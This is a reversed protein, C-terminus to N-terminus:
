VGGKVAVQVPCVEVGAVGAEPLLSSDDDLSLLSLLSLLTSSVESEDPDASSSLLLWSLSECCSAVDFSPSLPLSLSGIVGAGSYKLYRHHNMM